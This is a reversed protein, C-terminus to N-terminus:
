ICFSSQHIHLKSILGPEDKVMDMEILLKKAGDTWDNLNKYTTWDVRRDDNDKAKVPNMIEPFDRLTKTYMWSPDMQGEHETGVILATAANLMKEKNAEGEGSVQMMVAHEALAGTIEKTVKVPKGIKPPTVGVMGNKLARDLTSKNLKRDNPSNLMDDNFKAAIDRLGNGRTGKLPGDRIVQAYTTAKKFAAVYKATRFVNVANEEFRDRNAATRSRRSRKSMVAATAESDLWKKM